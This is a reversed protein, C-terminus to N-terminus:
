MTVWKQPRPKTNTGRFAEKERQENVHTHTHPPTQLPSSTGKALVTQIASFRSKRTKCSIYINQYKYYQLM